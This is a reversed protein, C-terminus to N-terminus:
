KGQHSMVGCASLSWTNRSSVSRSLCLSVISMLLDVRPFPLSLAEGSLPLATDTPAPRSGSIPDGEWDLGIIQQETFAKLLYRYRSCLYPSYEHRFKRGSRTRQEPLGRPSDHYVYTPSKQLAVTSREVEDGNEKKQSPRPALLHFLNIPHQIEPTISNKFRRASSVGYAVIKPIRKSAFAKFICSWLHPLLVIERHNSGLQSQSQATEWLSSQDLSLHREVNHQEPSM